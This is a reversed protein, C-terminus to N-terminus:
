RNITFLSKNFQSVSWMQNVIFRGPEGDISPPSNVFAQWCSAMLKAYVERLGKCLRQADALSIDKSLGEKLEDALNQFQLFDNKNIMLEYPSYGIVNKFTAECLASYRKVVDMEYVEFDYPILGANTNMCYNDM